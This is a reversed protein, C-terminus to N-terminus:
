ATVAEVARRTLDFGHAYCSLWVRKSANPPPADARALGPGFALQGGNWRASREPTLLAWRMHAFRKALLPAAASVVHHAPEFWAVYTVRWDDSTPRGLAHWRVAAVMRHMERRVAHAMEEVQVRFPDLPDHRLYPERMLRWLLHYVRAFRKTDAHLLARECSALLAPPLTLAPTAEDASADCPLPHSPPNFLDPEQAAAVRWEIQEPAVGQSLLRRAVVRFGAVDDPSALEVTLKCHPDM